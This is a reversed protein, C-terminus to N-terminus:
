HHLLGPKIVALSEPIKGRRGFIWRVRNPGDRGLLATVRGENWDVKNITGKGVFGYWLNRLNTGISATSQERKGILTQLVEGTDFLVRRTEGLKFFGGEIIVIASIWSVFPYRSTSFAVRRAGLISAVGIDTNGIRVGLV